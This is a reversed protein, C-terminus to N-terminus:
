SVTFDDVQIFTDVGPATFGAYVTVEHVGAPITVSVEQHVYGTSAAFTKEGM